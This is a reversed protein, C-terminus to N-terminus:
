ENEELTFSILDNEYPISLTYHGPWESEGPKYAQFPTFEAGNDDKYYVLEFTDDVLNEFIYAFTSGDEKVASFSVSYYKKNIRDRVVNIGNAKVYTKSDIKEVVFTGEITHNDDYGSFVGATIPFRLERWCSSLLLPTILLGIIIPTKTM